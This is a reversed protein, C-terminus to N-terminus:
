KEYQNIIILILKDSDNLFIICHKYRLVRDLTVYVALANPISWIITSVKVVYITV